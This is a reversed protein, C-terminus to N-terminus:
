TNKSIKWKGYGEREIFGGIELMTLATLTQSTSLGSNITIDDVHMVAAGITEAVTKEDGTLASLIISLDIYDVATKNDIEIKDNKKSKISNRQDKKMSFNSNTRYEGGGAVTDCTDGNTNDHIKDPFLEAYESVIDEGSLIPIAGERLLLNSGECSRMDVNGPLTFVDRGQELARTATILAGSRIPAEIVTVGLSLGSIIRNRAPFNSRYAPTGPPYESVIAGAGAVDDFLQANKLPYVVDIGSGIVGVVRGGGRLAGRAAATDIGKALGTVVLLGRQALLFGINEASMIGYPTCDRTGVIAVAAEEDIAPLKGRAYLVLPPDYINRLREPYEADQLSIVQYNLQQCKALIRNAGDLSKKSLEHFNASMVDRAERYRSADANYVNEPSGFHEILRSAIVPGVGSTTSLWIWYKLYSM